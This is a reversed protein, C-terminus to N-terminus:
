QELLKPLTIGGLSNIAGLVGKYMARYIATKEILPPQVFAEIDDQTFDKYIVTGIEDIEYFKFEENEAVKLLAEGEEANLFEGQENLLKLANWQKPNHSATLIIGGDAKEFLGAM